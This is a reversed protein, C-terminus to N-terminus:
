VADNKPAVVKGLLGGIVAGAAIAGIVWKGANKGLKGELDKSFKDIFGKTKSEVEKAAYEAKNKANLDKSVIEQIQADTLPTIEAKAKEVAATAAELAEKEAKTAENVVAESPAEFNSLKISADNKATFGTQHELATSYDFVKPAAEKVEPVIEKGAKDYMKGDKIHFGEAKLQKKMGAEYARLKTLKEQSTRVAQGVELMEKQRESLKAIAEDITMDNKALKELLAKDKASLKEGTVKEIENQVNQMYSEVSSQIVNELPEGQGVKKIADLIMDLTFPENVKKPDITKIIEEYRSKLGTLNNVLLRDKQAARGIVNSAEQPNSEYLKRVNLGDKRNQFGLMEDLKSYASDLTAQERAIDGKVKTYNNIKKTIGPVEKPIDGNRLQAQKNHEIINKVADAVTNKDAKLAEGTSSYNFKKAVKRAIEETKNELEKIIKEQEALEAKSAGNTKLEEYKASASVLDNIHQGIADNISLHSVTPTKANLVVAMKEDLATQAAKQQELLTNYASDNILEGNQAQARVTAEHLDWQNEAAESAKRVEGLATLFEKQEGTAAGLRSQFQDNSEKLIDAYSGYKPQAYRHVGYGAAAGGVILGPVVYPTASRKKQTQIPQISLEDTM